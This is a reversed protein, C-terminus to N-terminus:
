DTIIDITLKNTTYSQAPVGEFDAGLYVYLRQGLTGKLHYNERAPDLPFGLDLDHNFITRYPLSYQDKNYDWDSKDVVYGTKYFDGWPPQEGATTYKKTQFVQWVLPVRYGSNQVGILGSALLKGPEYTGTYKPSADPAMNDTYIIINWNGTCSYGIDIYQDATVYKAGSGNTGFSLGTAVADTIRNRIKVDLHNAGLLVTNVAIEDFYLTISQADTESVIEMAAMSTLDVAGFTDKLSLHQEQWIGAISNVMSYSAQNGFSDILRIKFKENGTVGMVRFSLMTADSINANAFGITNKQSPALNFVRTKGLIGNYRMVEAFSSDGLPTGANDFTDQGFINPNHGDGYDLWYSGTTVTVEQSKQSETNDSKASRVVYYYTTTDSLGTDTYATAPAISEGVIMYPGGKTTSRYINYKAAFNVSKWRLKAANKGFSAAAFGDPANIVPPEMAGLTISNWRIWESPANTIGPHYLTIRNWGKELYFGPTVLQEGESVQGDFVPTQLGNVFIQLSNKLQDQTELVRITLAAYDTDENYFLIDTYTEVDKNLAQEFTSIPAGAYYTDDLRYESGFLTPPNTTEDRAIAWVSNVIPSSVEINKWALWKANGTASQWQLTITNEGVKLDSSNIQIYKISSAPNAASNHEFAVPAGAADNVRITGNVIHNGIDKAMFSHIALLYPNSEVENISFHITYTPNAADIQGMHFNSEPNPDDVNIVCINDSTFGVKQIIADKLTKGPEIEFGSFNNWILGSDHTHALVLSIGMDVACYFSSIPSPAESLDAGMKFSNVFGYDGWIQYGYTDYLEKMKDLARICEEPLM